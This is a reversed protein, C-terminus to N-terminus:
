LEKKKEHELPISQNKEDRGAMIEDDKKTDNIVARDVWGDGRLMGLSKRIVGGTVAKPNVEYIGQILALSTVFVLLDGNAVGKWWGRKVGVKWLSALSYRASM